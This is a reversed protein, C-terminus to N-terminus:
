PTEIKRLRQEGARLEFVAERREGAVRRHTEPVFWWAARVREHTVDLLVYGHADLNVWHVHPNEEIVKREVDLSRTRPEAGLDDDLNETTISATVFEVAGPAEDPDDPRRKLEVAWATHVDGSLFVVNGIDERELFRFLEAREATYGDWQDPEPGHERRTLIGVESLPNGLEEPMFGTYVQGVMVDNGILRWRAQSRSLEALLWEHEEPGLVSRGPADMEPGQTQPDRKTRGDLMIVDALDGFGLTRYIRDESPPPPLRVPMWERWARLAAVRRAAWDGERDPDHGGAGDRWADNALEHDDLTAIVPHTEHLLQLDPDRRYHAYRARYDALTRAEHPPEVARGIKPGASSKPDDNGYEYIYDGVHLVVDLNTREALRAYVNFYGATYKACSVLALRLRDCHGRPATRTRGVPSRRGLAEFTYFYTTAPELGRADVHVTYDTSADTVATGEAVVEHLDPDGAIRWAFEVAGDEDPTVRTWLVVGDALPDGSAVGHRFPDSFGGVGSTKSALAL